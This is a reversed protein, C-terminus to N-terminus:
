NKSNRLVIMLLRLVNMYIWVLTVMIGLGAVWEYNKPLGGEVIREARDFDLILMFAGLIILGIFVAILLSTNAAFANAFAPNILSSVSLILSGLLVSILAGLVFKRLGNTAKLLGTSYLAFMVFFISLTSAIATIGIGPFYIDLMRTILGYLLGESASYLISFPAAVKPFFMAIFAGISGLILAPILMIELINSPIYISFFGTLLAAAILIITKVTVGSRTAYSTTAAYNQNELRQFIPNTSRM